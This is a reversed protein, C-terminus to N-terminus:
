THILNESNEHNRNWATILKKQLSEINLPIEGSTTGIKVAILNVVLGRAPECWWRIFIYQMIIVSEVRM